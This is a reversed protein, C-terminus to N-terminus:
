NAFTFYIDYFITLITVIQFSNNKYFITM